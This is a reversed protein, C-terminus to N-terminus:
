LRGDALERPLIGKIDYVVSHPKKISALDLERFQRHAVALVVADYAAGHPIERVSTFGYEKKVEESDAWPYVEEFFADYIKQVGNFDLRTDAITTMLVGEEPCAICLQGGLGYMSWGARTMWCQWGYGWQEEYFHRQFTDIQKRTLDTIGDAVWVKIDYTGALSGDGSSGGSKGCECCRFGKWCVM